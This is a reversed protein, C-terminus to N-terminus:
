QRTSRNRDAKEIAMALASSEEPNPSMVTPFNGDNIDQEPVHIINEFGLRGLIM